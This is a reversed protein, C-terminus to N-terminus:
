FLPIAFNSIGITSTHKEDQICCSISKQLKAQLLYLFNFNEARDLLSDSNSPKPPLVPLYGPSVPPPTRLRCRFMLEGYQPQDESLMTAFGRKKLDKWIFPWSDVTSSNSKGRRAEQVNLCLEEDTNGTLMAVVNPTTSVGVISHGKFVSFGAEEQIYRWSEPLMREFHARSTGDFMIMMIDLPASEPNKIDQKRNLVEPKEIVCAHIHEHALGDKFHTQVKWFDSNM